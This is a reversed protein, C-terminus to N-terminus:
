LLAPKAPETLTRAAIVDIGTGKWGAIVVDGTQVPLRVSLTYIDKLLEPIRERPCPASTRVPVRRPGSEGVDVIACTATVTRKPARLEEAAYAAGRPCRNGTVTVAGSGDAAASLSCGIPCIICTLESM